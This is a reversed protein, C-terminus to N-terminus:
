LLEKLQRIFEAFLNMGTQWFASSSIDVGMITGAEACSISGGAKLLQKFKPVFEIPDQRYLSYLAFAFLQGYVYPYNYFRPKPLFNHKPVGWIWGWEETLEVTDGFIKEQSTIWTEAIFNGDLYQGNKIAEYLTSEFFFMSGAQFINRGAGDLLHTLIAIKEQNSQTNELLWDSLILEGFLSATEAICSSVTDSEDISDNFNFYPQSRTGYYSHIAHGLEHALTYIHRMKQNFNMLLYATQGKHAPECFAGSFKGHKPTADIHEREFMDAVYERFEPDFRGFVDLILSQADAWSYNKDPMDSLPASLDEPRLKPLHLLKAKLRIFEQYLAVNNEVSTILNQIVLEEVDNAVLTGHLPTAFNRRASIKVWNNFISRLAFSYIEQDEKISDTCNKFVSTRTSRDPHSLHTVAQGFSMIEATGEIEVEIKRSNLWTQQLNFWAEVGDLDKELILDEEVPSLRHSAERAIRELYHTFPALDPSNLLEKRNNVLRGLELRLFSLEQKIQTEIQQAKNHIKQTQPDTMNAYFSLIAFFLPSELESFFQDFEQIISKLESPTGAFVNLNGKYKQQLANATNQLQELDTFYKSVSVFDYLDSLNWEISALNKEDSM